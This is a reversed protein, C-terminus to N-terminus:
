VKAQPSTRGLSLGPFPRTDLGRVNVDGSSVCVSFLGIGYRM